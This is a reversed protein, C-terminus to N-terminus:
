CVDDLEVDDEDVDRLVVLVLSTLDVSVILVFSDFSMSSVSSRSQSTYEHRCISSSARFIRSYEDIEEEINAEEVTDSEKGLVGEVFLFDVGLVDCFLLYLAM